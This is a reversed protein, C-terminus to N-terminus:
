PHSSYTNICNKQSVFIIKLSLEILKWESNEKELVPQWVFTLSGQRIQKKNM